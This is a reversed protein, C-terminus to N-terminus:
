FPGEDEDEIVFGPQNMKSPLQMFAKHPAPYELLNLKAKLREIQYLLEFENVGQKTVDVEVSAKRGGETQVTLTGKM